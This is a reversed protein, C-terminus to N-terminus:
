GAPADLAASFWDPSYKEHVFVVAGEPGQMTYAKFACLRGPDAPWRARGVDYLRRVTAFGSRSLAFGLPQAPDNMAADLRPDHARPAVVTNFSITAGDPTLLRSHRLWCLKEGQLRLASVAEADGLADTHIQEIADTHIDLSAQAAAQLLM